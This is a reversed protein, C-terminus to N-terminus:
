QTPRQRAEDPTPQFIAVADKYLKSENGLFGECYGIVEGGLGQEAVVQKLDIPVYGTSYLEEVVTCVIDDVQDDSLRRSIM